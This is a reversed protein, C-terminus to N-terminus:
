AATAHEAAWAEFRPFDNWAGGAAMHAEYAKGWRVRPSPAAAVTAAPRATRREAIAADIARNFYRLGAPPAKARSMVDRVVDLVLEATAGAALWGQVDRAHWVSRAPDMGAAEAVQEALALAERVRTQHDSSKSEIQDDDDSPKRPQTETAPVAGGAVPLMLPAQARRLRAAEPTEGRRPRGGKQGNEQAARAKASRPLLLPAALGGAETRALLGERLLTELQTECEPEPVSVLLSVRAASGFPLTGPEEAGAMAEGLLLFFARTAWPLSRLRPDTRVADFLRSCVCRRAM